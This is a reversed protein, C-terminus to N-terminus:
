RKGMTIVLRKGAPAEMGWLKQIDALYVNETDVKLKKTEALEFMEPLIESFLQNMEDKTWSGLGSGSLQLDVSRLNEASLQIKDDTVSGVSVFRVKHTFSGKGKLSSLILEASHGWLYDLIVDIPTNAHIKKLQLIFQDDDQKLPIIEDAGLALLGKLREENRGTVIIKKAGYHKAVQVAIKGTFGTAGNILVTEAPKMRARFRLAMASGAVANPLAAASIDNIGNPLIVMRRKDIVAKEAIMGSVGLGFVRTGDALLGVGDGGIVTAKQTTNASYHKGSAKGKDFHKIAAATVVILLEDDNQVVPDPFEAYQPMEGRQFIVAAKM